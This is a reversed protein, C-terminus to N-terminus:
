FEINSHNRERINKQTQGAEDASCLEELVEAHTHKLQKKSHPKPIVENIFAGLMAFGLIVGLLVFSLIGKSSAALFMYVSMQFFQFFIYENLSQYYGTDKWIHLIDVAFPYSIFVRGWSNEGLCWRLLEYAMNNVADIGLLWIVLSKTCSDLLWGFLFIVLFYLLVLFPRKKTQSLTSFDSIYSM